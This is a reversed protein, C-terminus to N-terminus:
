IRIIMVKFDFRDSMEEFTDYIVVKACLQLANVYGCAKRGSVVSYNYIHLKKERYFQINRHSFFKLKLCILAM